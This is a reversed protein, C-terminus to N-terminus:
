IPHYGPYRDLHWRERGEECRSDCRGHRFRIDSEDAEAGHAEAHGGVEDGLVVGDGAEVQVGGGEGAESVCAAGHGGRGCVRRAALHEVDAHDGGCGLGVGDQEVAVVGDDRGQRVGRGQDEAGGDGSGGGAGYM